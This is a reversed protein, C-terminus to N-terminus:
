RWNNSQLVLFGKDTQEAPPKFGLITLLTFARRNDPSVYAEIETLGLGEFGYRIIAQLAEQMLRKGWYNKSLAFQIEASRPSKFWYSCTGAFALTAKEALVWTMGIGQQYEDM